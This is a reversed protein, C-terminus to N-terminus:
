GRADAHLSQPNFVIRSRISWTAFFSAAIAVLKALRPDIGILEGVGVIAATLGLGVLASLVFLGKQRTRGRGAPAVMNTFVKRSSVMWHAFIGAAYGSVAALVAPVGLALLAIFVLMDLALAGMSALLYRLLRIDGIRAFLAAM